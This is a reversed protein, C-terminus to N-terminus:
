NSYTINLHLHTMIKKREREFLACASVSEGKPPSILDIKYICPLHVESLSTIENFSQVIFWHLSNCRGRLWGWRWGEVVGVEGGESLLVAWRAPVGWTRPCQLSCSLRSLNVSAMACARLSRLSDGRWGSQEWECHLLPPELTVWVYTNIHPGCACVPSDSLWSVATRILISNHSHAWPTLLYNTIFDGTIWWSCRFHIPCSVGM